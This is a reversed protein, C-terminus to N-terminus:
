PRGGSVPAPSRVPLGIAPNLTPAAAPAGPAAAPPTGTTPRATAGPAAAGPAAGSPAAGPSAPTATAPPVTAPPPVSTPPVSPPVGAPTVTGSPRDLEDGRLETRGRAARLVQVNRLQPDARFGIGALSRGPEAFTFSTDSSVQNAIRDYVLRPSALRRGDTTTIVVDGRGTVQQRRVDYTGERGTMVANSDGAASFFTTRVKRLEIRNGEDFFYATDAVLQSRRIGATTMQHRMGYMVQDASDPMANRATQETPRAGKCAAFAGTLVVAAALARTAHGAGRSRGATRAREPM